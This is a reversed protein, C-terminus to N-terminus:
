MLWDILSVTGLRMYDTGRRQDFGSLELWRDRRQTCSLSRTKGQATEYKIDM